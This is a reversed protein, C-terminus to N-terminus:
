AVPYSAQMALGCRGTTSAADDRVIKIYGGEAWDSGWSNKMLWYKTGHEDTGYGVATVAHNLDTTCTEARGAGFVGAHFLQFVSGGGDLSVSVPQHAVALLLATENNPPVYEFGRISAAAQKGSARCTGQQKEYAYDAESAIGGNGTIYRFAEDMDGRNCGHNNAGTSCDMLQQASVSVLNHTRIEHIGEVAAAASFAWCSACDKGQDKVNTVAGKDIWNISSPVDSLSVNGYMFGTGNRMTPYNTSVPAYGYAYAFEENTLDAFKNTTLRPSKKGGAANFSDVFQANSKFVEFRRAKELSDEYTRGHEAAWKEFREKMVSDGGAAASRERAAVVFGAPCCYMISILLLIAALSFSSSATRHKRCSPSGSATAM